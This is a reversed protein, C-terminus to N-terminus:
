ANTDLFAAAMDALSPKSAIDYHTAGPVIALRASARLSGDLGADRRAGGLTKYFEAMHEAQIADADAFVLMTPAKIAAVGDKWDFSQSELDGIKRLLREWDVEPYMTGIPGGQINQAIQPAHVSMQEYARRVEPFWASHRMPQSVVILRRVAKPHRIATQLAVGGGMPYGLVDVEALGLREVLQALDDAMSEFRLPRDIANLRSKDAALPEETRGCEPEAEAGAPQLGTVDALSLAGSTVASAVALLAVLTVNRLAPTM